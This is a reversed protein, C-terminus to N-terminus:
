DTQVQLDRPDDEGSGAVAAHASEHSQGCQGPTHAVTTVEETKAAQNGNAAFAVLGVYAAGSYSRCPDPSEAIMQNANPLDYDHWTKPHPPGVLAIFKAMDMTFYQAEDPTGSQAKAAKAKVLAKAYERFTGLVLASTLARFPMGGVSDLVARGVMQGSPMVFDYEDRIKKMDRSIERSGGSDTVHVQIHNAMLIRKVQEDAFFDKKSAMLAKVITVPPLAVAGSVVLSIACALAVVASIGFPLMFRKRRFVSRPPDVITFTPEEAV